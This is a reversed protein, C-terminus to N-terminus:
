QCVLTSNVERVLTVPSLVQVCLAQLCIEKVYYCRQFIGHLLFWLGHFAKREATQTFLKFTNRACLM